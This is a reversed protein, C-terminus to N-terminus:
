KRKKPSAATTWLHACICQCYYTAPMTNLLTLENTIWSSKNFGDNHLICKGCLHKIAKSFWINLHSIHVCSTQWFQACHLLIYYIYIYYMECSPAYVLM